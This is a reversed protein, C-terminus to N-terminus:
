MERNTRSASGERRRHHSQHDRHDEGAVMDALEPSILESAVTDTTSM